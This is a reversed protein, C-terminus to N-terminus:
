DSHPMRGGTGRPFPSELLKRRKELDRQLDTFDKWNQYEQGLLKILLIVGIVSAFAVALALLIFPAAM